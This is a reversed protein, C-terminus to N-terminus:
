NQEKIMDRANTGLSANKGLELIRRENIKKKKQKLSFNALTQRM